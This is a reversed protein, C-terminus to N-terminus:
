DCSALCIPAARGEGSCCYQAPSHCDSARECGIDNSASCVGNVCSKSSCQYDNVCTAQCSGKVCAASCTSDV